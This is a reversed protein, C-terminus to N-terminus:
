NMESHKLMLFGKWVFSKGTGLWMPLQIVSQSVQHVSVPTEMWMQFPTGDWKQAVQVKLPCILMELEFRNKLM